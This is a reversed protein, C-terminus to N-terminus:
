RDQKRTAEYEEKKLWRYGGAQKRGQEHNIVQCINRQCVGTAISAEESGLYEAVFEGEMTLQVIHIRRDKNHKYMGKIRSNDLSTELLIHDRSSLAILNNVHNNQKNGDLHHIQFGKPIEGVFAEYVLRHILVTKSSQDEYFLVRRLYEKKQNKNSLVFPVVTFLSQINGFNSIQYRGEFGKIDKWREISNNSMM